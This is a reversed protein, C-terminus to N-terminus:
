EWVGSVRGRVGWEGERECVREGERGCVRGGACGCM